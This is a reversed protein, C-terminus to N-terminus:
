PARDRDRQGCGNPCAEIRLRERYPRGRPEARLWLPRHWEDAWLWGYTGGILAPTWMVPGDVERALALARPAPDPEDRRRVHIERPEGDRQFRFVWVDRYSGVGLNDGDDDDLWAPPIIPNM